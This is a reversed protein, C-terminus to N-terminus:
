FPIDDSLTEAPAPAAETTREEENTFRLGFFKRTGDKSTNIWAAIKVAQGHIKASGTHSPSKDSKPDRNRFLTGSMDDHEYAM